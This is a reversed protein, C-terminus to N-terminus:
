ELSYIGSISNMLNSLEYNWFGYLFIIDIYRILSSLIYITNTTSCPTIMNIFIQTTILVKFLMSSKNIEILIDNIHISYRDIIFLYFQGILFLSLIIPISFIICLIVEEPAIDHPPILNYYAYIIPYINLIFRANLISIITITPYQHPPIHICSPPQM